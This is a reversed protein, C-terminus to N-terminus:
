IQCALQFASQIAHYFNEVKVCDGIAHVDWKNEKYKKLKEYLERRPSFGFCSVVSDASFQKKEGDPYSVLVGKELIEIPKANCNIPVGVQKLQHFLTARNLSHEDELLREEPLIDILQVRRGEHALHWGVECGVFGAGLLVVSEGLSEKGSLADVVMIAQNGGPLELPKMRAGAAVIIVDPAMDKIVEVTVNRNLVVEVSSNELRDRLYDFYRRLDSKFFPLSGIRLNGGIEADKECLFVQHGRAAATIAAEMGGPGSGVIVVKQQQTAQDIRREDLEGLSPNIACRTLHGKIMYLHCQNCKICPRIKDPRDKNAKYGWDADSLFARGVAVLDAAKRELVTEADEPHNFGGAAIVPVDVEAKVKEALEVLPNREL